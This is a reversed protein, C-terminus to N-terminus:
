WPLAEEPEGSPDVLSSARAGQKSDSGTSGRERTTKRGGGKAESPAARDLLPSIVASDRDLLPQTVAPVEGEATVGDRDLLPSIVASDRRRDRIRIQREGVTLDGEQWEDWGEVYWGSPTQLVDGRDLFRKLRSAGLARSLTSRDRFRGRQPQRNAACLLLVMGEPDPHQDLNPSM